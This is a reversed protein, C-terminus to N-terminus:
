VLVSLLPQVISYLLIIHSMDYRIGLSINGRGKRVQGNGM